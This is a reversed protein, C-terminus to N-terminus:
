HGHDVGQDRLFRNIEDAKGELRELTRVVQEQQRQYDEKCVYKDPMEVVAGAVWGLASLLVAFLLTALIRWARTSNGDWWDKILDSM